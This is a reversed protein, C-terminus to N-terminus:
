HPLFVRSWRGLDRLLGLVGPGQPLRWRVPQRGPEYADTMWRLLGLATAYAPGSLHDMLGYVEAVSGVRAPLGSMEEAVTLLGPLQATGGTVVLGASIREGHGSRKVEVLAMALIEEVRAQVIEAILSRPVEREQGRNFSGLQVPEDRESAALLTEGHATKVEEATAYPCRLGVVLDRTVHVGGVPLVATHAIAGDLCIALDTTGGGVDLVVVGEQMEDPHLVAAATAVTSAILTDVQAGAGEVCKMVNQLASMGGTIIHMEVDLRQGHMGEPDSVRDQGDVVFYRPLAHMMERNSQLSVTRGADIVRQTDDASIPRDVGPIAVIGRNNMSALHAGSVSVGASVIHTGSSREAKELSARIAETAQAINSVQGKEVGASPAVGSGLVRLKGHEDADGVITAVKTSGLDIAAFARGKAM